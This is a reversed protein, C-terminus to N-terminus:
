VTHWLRKQIMKSIFKCRLLQKILQKQLWQSEAQILFNKLILYPTWFPKSCLQHIVQCHNVTATNVRLKRKDKILKQKTDQVFQTTRNHICDKYSSKEYRDISSNKNAKTVNSIPFGVPKLLTLPSSKNYSINILINFFYRPSCCWCRM